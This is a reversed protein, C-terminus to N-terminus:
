NILGKMVEVSKLLLGCFDPIIKTFIKTQDENEWKENDLCSLLM